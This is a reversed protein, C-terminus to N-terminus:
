NAIQLQLLPLEHESLVFESLDFLFLFPPCLAQRLDESFGRFAERSEASDGVKLDLAKISWFIYFVDVIGAVNTEWTNIREGSSNLGGHISSPKPGHSHERAQSTRLLCILTKMVEQRM